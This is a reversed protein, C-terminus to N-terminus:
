TQLDRINGRRGFAQLELIQGRRARSYEICRRVGGITGWALLRFRSSSRREAFRQDRRLRGQGSQRSVLLKLPLGDRVFYSDAKPIPKSRLMTTQCSACPPEM